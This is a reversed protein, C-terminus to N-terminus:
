HGNDQLLLLQIFEAPEQLSIFHLYRKVAFRNPDLLYYTESMEEVSNYAHVDKHAALVKGRTEPTLVHLQTIFAIYEAATHTTGRPNLFPDSIAHALEHAAFSCWLDETLEIGMVKQTGESRRVAEAYALILVRQNAPDYAGFLSHYHASAIHRVLKITICDSTQLGITRLFNIANETASCLCRLNEPRDFSFAVPTESCRLLTPASFAMSTFLFLSLLAILLRYPIGRM